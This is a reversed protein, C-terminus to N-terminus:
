RTSLVTEHKHPTEGVNEENQTGWRGGSGSNSRSRHRCDGAVLATHLVYDARLGMERSGTM